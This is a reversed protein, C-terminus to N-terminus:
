AGTVDFAGKMNPHVDCFFYYRGPTAPSDFTYVTSGQGILEGKFLASRMQEDAYLSFNHQVPDLNSFELEIRTSAPVSLSTADFAIDKAVLRLQLGAPAAAVSERSAAALRTQAVAGAAVIAAVAFGVLGAMVSGKIRPVSALVVAGGLVVGALVLATGTAAAKSEFRQVALLIRSASWVVLVLGVTSIVPLALPEVLRRRTEDPLVEARVRQAALESPIVVTEVAGPQGGLLARAGSAVAAIAGSGVLAWGFTAMGAFWRQPGAVAQWADGFSVPTAQTAAAMAVFGQTAGGVVEAIAVALIGTVTLGLHADGARRWVFNRGTVRPLAHYAAAFLWSGCVGALLLKDVGAALSTLGGAQNVSRLSAVPMALTYLALFGLGAVCWRVVLSRATEAWLGKLSRLLNALTVALPVASAIAFAIGFSQYAPQAPSYVLRAGSALSWFLAFGWLGIAALRRSYLPAGSEKPLVYYVVGTAAVYLWLGRISHGAFAMQIAQGVGAYTPLASLVLATPLWILAAVFYWLSPYIKPQVRTVVSLVVAALVVVSSGALALLVPVPFEVAEFPRGFGAAVTLLGLGVLGAWALANLALLAGFRLPSGTLRPVVYLIAGFAASSLWGYMALAGVVPLLNGHPAQRANAEALAVVAPSSVSAAWLAAAIATALFFLGSFVFYLRAAFDGSRSRLLRSGPGTERDPAAVDEGARSAQTVEEALATAM